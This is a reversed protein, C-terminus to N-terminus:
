RNILKAELLASIEEMRSTWSYKKALAIRKGRVSADEALAIEIDRIFEAPSNAQYFYEKFERLSSLATGVVPRGSALYEFFKMPFMNRTYENLKSPLLCVDFGKLYNPLKGYPRGGLIHINPMEKLGSVAASKEGEGVAGILVINWAPRENAITKLLSFDLKYNSVAGVFGLIPHEISSLDTPVQLDPDQIKLIHEVDAVNPLYHIERALPKKATYLEPSTVITIDAAALLEKEMDLIINGPILPNAAIEDVCHYVLLKEGLKGKFYVANPVYSWLIPAPMALKRALRRLAAIMIRHNLWRVLAFKYFPLVLPSYTYLQDSIKIPGRLFRKLRRGIRKMDKSQLVPRRLGMSEIYLVKNQRALRSMIHQQNTWYPNDWDASSICIINENKIM